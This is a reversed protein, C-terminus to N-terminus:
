LGSPTDVTAAGLNPVFLHEITWSKPDFGRSPTLIEKRQGITEDNSSCHDSNDNDFIIGLVGLQQFPLGQGLIKFHNTASGQALSM